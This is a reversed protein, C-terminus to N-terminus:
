PEIPYLYWTNETLVASLPPRISSDVIAKKCELSWCHSTFHSTCGAIIASSRGASSPPPPPLLSGRAPEFPPNLHRGCPTRAPLARMSLTPSACARRRLAIDSARRRSKSSPRRHLLSWVAARLASRRRRTRRLAASPTARSQPRCHPRAPRRCAAGRHASRGESGELKWQEEEGVGGRAAPREIRSSHPDVSQEHGRVLARQTQPHRAPLPSPPALRPSLIM